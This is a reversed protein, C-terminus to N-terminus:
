SEVEGHAELWGEAEPKTVIALIQVEKDTVDYFVRVEAVRLRFQRDITGVRRALETAHRWDRWPRAKTM